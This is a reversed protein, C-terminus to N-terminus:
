RSDLCPFPGVSGVGFKEFLSDITMVPDPSSPSANATKAKVPAQPLQPSSSSTQGEPTDVAAAVKGKTPRTRWNFSADAKSGSPVREKMNAGSDADNHRIPTEYMAAAMSDDQEKNIYQAIDDAIARSKSQGDMAKVDRVFLPQFAVRGEEDAPSGPITPLASKGSQNLQAKLISSPSLIASMTLSALSRNATSNSLSAPASVTTTKPSHDIQNDPSSDLDDM